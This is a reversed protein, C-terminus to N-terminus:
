ISSVVPSLVGCFRMGRIMNMAMVAPLTSVPCIGSTISICLLSKANSSLRIVHTIASDSFHDAYAAAIHGAHVVIKLM